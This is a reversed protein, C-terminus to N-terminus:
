ETIINNNDETIIPEDLESLVYSIEVPAASIGVPTGPLITPVVQSNFSGLAKNPFSVGSNLHKITTYYGSGTITAQLRSTKQVLFTSEFGKIDISTEKRAM